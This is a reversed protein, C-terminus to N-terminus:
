KEEDGSTQALIKKILYAQYDSLEDRYNQKRIEGDKYAQFTERILDFSPDEFPNYRFVKEVLFPVESVELMDNLLKILAETTKNDDDEILLLIVEVLSQTDLGKLDFKYEQCMDILDERDEEIQKQKHIFDFTKEEKGEEDYIEIKCGKIRMQKGELYYFDLLTHTQKKMFYLLFDVLLRFQNFSTEKGFYNDSRKYDELANKFHSLKLISLYNYNRFLEIQNDRMFNQLRKEICTFVMRKYLYESRMNLKINIYNGIWITIFMEVYIYIM